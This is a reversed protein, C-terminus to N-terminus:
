EATAMASVVGGDIWGYGRGKSACDEFGVLEEWDKREAGAIRGLNAVEDDAADDLDLLIAPFNVHRGRKECL